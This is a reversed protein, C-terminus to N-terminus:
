GRAAELDALVEEAHTEPEVKDYVKAIRGAPDILFSTRRKGMFERGMFKKKGWVGYLEVVKKERDALLPFSLQYKEAFRAHSAASDVSVGFVQAGLKGFAPFKDRIACAEKTCQPTDDKPYFYLLVWRGRYESLRHAIGNQDPLVFDPALDGPQLKM